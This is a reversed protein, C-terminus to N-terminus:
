VTTPVAAPVQGPAIPLVPANPLPKLPAYVKGPSDAELGNVPPVPIVVLFPWCMQKMSPSYPSSEGNGPACNRDITSSFPLGNGPEGASTCVGFMPVAFKVAAVVIPEAVIFTEAIFGYVIVLAAHLM